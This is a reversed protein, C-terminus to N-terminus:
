LKLLDRLPRSLADHLRGRFGGSGFQTMYRVIRGLLADDLSIQNQGNALQALLEGYLTQHGGSGVPTQLTAVEQPTLQLVIPKAKTM